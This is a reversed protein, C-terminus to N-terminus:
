CIFTFHHHQEKLIDVVLTRCSDSRMLPIKHRHACIRPLIHKCVVHFTISPGICIHILTGAYKFHPIKHRRTANVHERLNMLKAHFIRQKNECCRLVPASSIHDSIRLTHFTVRAKRRTEYISLAKLIMLKLLTQIGM